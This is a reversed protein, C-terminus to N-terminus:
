ICPSTTAATVDARTPPMAVRADARLLAVLVPIDAAHWACVPWSPSRGASPLEQRVDYDEGLM